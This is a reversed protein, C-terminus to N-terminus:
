TGSAEKAEEAGSSRSGKAEEELMGRRGEVTLWLSRSAADLTSTITAGVRSLITVLQARLGDLGGEITGVWRAGEMDFAKGEVRAGLLMLKQLGDQVLKEHYGPNTGRKPAPFQSNPSLISLAAKLHQTTVSPFTLVALPGSLLPEFGHKRESNKKTRKGTAVWAERSLGHRFIQDSAEMGFNPDWFEVVRLASAFIGTQVVQLRVGRSGIYGYDGTKALEDDVKRMAANLERRIGAWETARINNHQFIVILPSSRLLSQYQRHLQSKRFEPRKYSPPQTPPYRSISSSSAIQDIPRSPVVASATTALSAHRCQFCVYQPPKIRPSLAALHQFRLRPRM